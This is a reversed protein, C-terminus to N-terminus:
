KKSDNKGQKMQRHRFGLENEASVEIKNESAV